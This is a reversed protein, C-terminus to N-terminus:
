PITLPVSASNNDRTVEEFVRGPNVTVRIRYDGPPVDTIDLWQCDLTNGYLDSWGAQIGQAECNYVKSCGIKPGALVRATDEMCYAQKHGTLVVAGAGDLLEYTAFGSFHYHGHCPSFQFLDPREAPPPVTLTAQGQNLAEVSFRVIERTGAGGVCGEVLACSDDTVEITDFLVEDALRQANLVLDPMAEGQPRCACDSGCFEGPGCPPSCSPLLHDCDPFTGCQGSAPICLQGEPCQGCEGGCGDDGCERGDCAPTCPDPRCRRDACLQGDPCTGCDGGCGDDGGCYRGDCRPVCGDAAFKTTLTFPGFQSSDFGDVILFYTGPDLDVAIRSGYDGPPSSDDSCAVTAGPGDDLCARRLHLVTDYGSSRAELGVRADTTFTYVLEVATSTSNCTPVAQHLATTTDGEIVHVGLLPEGPPLLPLPDGCTGPQSASQCMGTASACGQDAACAGCNGGCGDDGCQAGACSPACDSFCAACGPGLAFSCTGTAEDCADTTCAEGDDCPAPGAACAGDVLREAGNCFVGDSCAVEIAAGADVLFGDDGRLGSWALTHRGERPPAVATGTFTIADGVAGGATLALAGGAWASDNPLVLSADGPAIPGSSQNTATVKVAIEDGPRAQAPLEVVVDSLKVLAPGREANCALVVLLPVFAIRRIRSM